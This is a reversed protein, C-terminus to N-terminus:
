TAQRYQTEDIVLEWPGDASSTARFDAFDFTLIPLRHREAIAMVSADVFGLDLDAYTADIEVARRLLGASMYGVELEGVAMSRLVTRAPELGVRKRLM